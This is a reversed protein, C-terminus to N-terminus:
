SIMLLSKYKDIDIINSAIDKVYTNNLYLILKANDNKFELNGLKFYDLSYADIIENEMDMLFTFSLDLKCTSCSIGEKGNRTTGSSMTSWLALEDSSGCIPCIKLFAKIEKHKYSQCTSLQMM